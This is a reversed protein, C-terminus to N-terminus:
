KTKHKINQKRSRSTKRPTVREIERNELLAIYQPSYVKSKESDLTLKSANSKCVDVLLKINSRQEDTSALTMLIERNSLIDEISYKEVTSNEDSINGLDSEANKKNILYEGFIDNERTLAIQVLSCGASDRQHIHGGMEFLKDLVDYQPCRVQQNAILFLIRAAFLAICIEVSKSDIALQFATKNTKNLKDVPVGKSILLKTLEPNSSKNAAIMLANDGEYTEANINPELELSRKVCSLSRSQVALLFLTRGDNDSGELQFNYSPLSSLLKLIRDQGKEAAHMIETKNELDPVGLTAAHNLLARVILESGQGSGIAAIMPTEGKYNIANIDAGSSILYQAIEFQQRICAIHLATNGDEFVDKLDFNPRRDHPDTLRRVEKLDAIRLARALRLFDCNEYFYIRHRNFQDSLDWFYQLRDPSRYEPKACKYLLELAESNEKVIAMEIPSYLSSGIYYPSAGYELLLPVVGMQNNSIAITLAESIENISFTGVNKKREVILQIIKLHGNAAALHLPTLSCSMDNIDLQVHGNKEPRYTVGFRSASSVKAELNAGTNLLEELCVHHGHYAALHLATLGKEVDRVRKGDQQSENRGPSGQNLNAGAQKLRRLADIANAKVAHMLPTYGMYDTINPNAGRKLFEEILPLDNKAASLALPVVAGESNLSTIRTQKLLYKVIEEHGKLMALALPTIKYDFGFQRDGSPYVRQFINVNIDFNLQRVAKKVLEKRGSLVSAM